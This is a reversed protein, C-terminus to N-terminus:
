VRLAGPGPVWVWAAGVVFAHQRVGEDFAGEGHARGEDGDDAVVLGGCEGFFGEFLAFGDALEGVLRHHPLSITCALLDGLGVNVGLRSGHDIVSGPPSPLAPPHVRFVQNHGILLNNRRAIHL